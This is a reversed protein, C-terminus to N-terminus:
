RKLMNCFFLLLSSKTRPLFPQPLPYIYGYLHQTNARLGFNKRYKLSQRKAEHLALAIQQAKRNM